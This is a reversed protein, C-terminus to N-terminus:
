ELADLVFHIDNEHAYRHACSGETTRLTPNIFGGLAYLGIEKVSGPITIEKLNRCGYFAHAGIEVVSDPIVVRILGTCNCFAGEDILTVSDPITVSTMQSCGWFARAGIETVIRKGIVLPIEVNADKGRYETIAYAGDPRPEFSWVKRMETVSYPNTGIKRYCEEEIEEASFFTNKHNLLLALMDVNQAKSASEIYEDIAQVSFLGMKLISELVPLNQQEMIRAIIMKRHKRIYDEYMAKAEEDHREATSLYCIALVVRAHPPWETLDIGPLYGFTLKPLHRDGFVATDLKTIRKSFVASELNVCGAFALRQIEAVSDPVTIRTLKVCNYFAREAIKTVSDPITATALNYCYAFTDEAIETVGHPIAISEISRCSRFAAEGIAGVSEPLEISALRGCGAFAGAGIATVGDPVTLSVLRANDDAAGPHSGDAAPSGSDQEAAECRTLVVRDGPASLLTLRMGSQVLQIEEGEPANAGERTRDWRGGYVGRSPDDLADTVTILYHRERRSFQSWPFGQAVTSIERPWGGNLNKIPESDAM